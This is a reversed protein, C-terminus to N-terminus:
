RHVDLGISAVKYGKKMFYKGLKGVTTTKGSGFLGILMIKFPKKDIKIEAPKDGLFKVLEEYVINILHVKKTLGAPTEEKLARKKIENSLNFVLQVNVDCQLLARHIDKVLENILKDDVFVASAIKKLTEKLSSGLKELVM